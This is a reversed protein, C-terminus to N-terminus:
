SWTHIYINEEMDTYIDLVFNLEMHTCIYKEEMHTYVYLFCFNLEMHTYVYRKEMNKYSIFFFNLQMHMYMNKESISWTHIYICTHAYIANVIHKKQIRISFQFTNAYTMHVFMFWFIYLYIGFHRLAGDFHNRICIAWIYPNIASICPGKASVHPEKSPASISIVLAQPFFPTKEGRFSLTRKIPRNRPFTFNKQTLTYINYPPLSHCSCMATSSTYALMCAFVCLCM